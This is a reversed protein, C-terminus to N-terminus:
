NGPGHIECAEQMCAWGRGRTGWGAKSPARLRELVPSRRASNVGETEETVARSLLKMSKSIDPREVKSISVFNRNQGRLDIRSSCDCELWMEAQCRMRRTNLPWGPPRPTTRRSQPLCLQGVRIFGWTATKIATAAAIANNPLDRRGPGAPCPHQTREFDIRVVQSAKRARVSSEREGEEGPARTKRM